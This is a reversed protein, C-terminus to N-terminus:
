LKFPNSRSLDPLTFNTVMNANRALYKFADSTADAADDKNKRSGDFIELEDFYTDNWEGMVVKVMGAEAVSAFPAFRTIKSTNTTYMRAYFGREALERIISQAYAKGAANPDAPIVIETDSGDKIATEIITQLVGHPRDRFRVLDEIIYSGFKDKSMKVGATWDPNPYAESPISGALDWARVKKVSVLPPMTLMEVWERKFYGAAEEKAYWSGDLLRMREVKKLGQLFSLYQPNKQMGIPNDYINASIFTFSLLLDENLSPYKSLIEEKSDGWILSGDMNTFYRVKGDLERRPIGTEPDLYPEVWQRLFSDYKPNCTMVLQSRLKSESRLRSMLYLVSSEQQHQAEDFVVLTYQGGDFNYRDEERDLQSFQIVAGSPFVCRLSQSLVRPKFPNYLSRAVDFLGGSQTLQTRTQRIFVARYHPDTVGELAKLLACHSKGCGAGGGYVIVDADSTLFMRQKDSAPGYMQRPQKAKAM